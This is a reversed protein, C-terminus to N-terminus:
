QKILNALKDDINKFNTDIKNDMVSIKNTLEGVLIRNTESLDKNTESLASNTKLVEKNTNDSNSLKEELRNERADSKKLIYILLWAFLVGFIGYQVIQDLLVKEM